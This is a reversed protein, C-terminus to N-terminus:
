LWQEWPLLLPAAFLGAIVGALRQGGTLGTWGLPGDERDWILPCALIALGLPWRMLFDAGDNWLAAAAFGALLSITWLILRM